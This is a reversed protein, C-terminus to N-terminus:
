LIVGLWFGDIPLRIHTEPESNFPPGCMTKIINNNNSFYSVLFIQLDQINKNTDLFDSGIDTTYDSYINEYKWNLLM